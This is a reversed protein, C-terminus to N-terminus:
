GCPPMSAEQARGGRVKGAKYLRMEAVRARAFGSHASICPEPRPPSMPCIRSTPGRDQGGDRGRAHAGGRGATPGRCAGGSDPGGAHDILELGGLDIDADTGAACLVALTRGHAIIPFIGAKKEPAEGLFGCAARLAGGGDAGRRGHRAEITNVIAPASAMPIVLEGLARRPMPPSIGRAMAAYCKAKVELLAVRQCLRRLEGSNAHM